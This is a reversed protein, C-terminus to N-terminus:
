EDHYRRVTDAASNVIGDNVSLQIVFDGAVDATFDADRRYPEVSKGHQRSSPEYSSAFTLPNGGCRYFRLRETNGPERHFLRDPGANATPPSNGTNIVVTDPASNVTGDNVILQVIYQGALDAVFTPTVTNPGLLTAASGAPRSTMSWVYTLPNGDVDSSASGNLNVTSGVNVTQDPGAKAVPPSNVTTITITDPTSSVFGDNVILQLVYSGPRDVNITPAVASTNSLAASSGSPRTTVSWTFSLAQGDIDTSHAGSLQVTTGVPVTQDPGANASPASNSTNVTVSDPASNLQGDNVVLQIVYPGFVDVPISPTVATPNSLVAM